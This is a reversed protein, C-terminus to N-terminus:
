CLEATFTSACLTKREHPASAIVTRVPLLNSLSKAPTFLSRYIPVGYFTLIQFSFPM